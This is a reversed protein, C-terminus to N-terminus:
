RFRVVTIGAGGLEVREDEFSEVADINRLYNRVLQRLIGWGKGHLIKVESTGTMFADDIFSELAPIAEEAKMGRMDIHPRFNVKKYYLEAALNSGTDEPRSANRYEANSIKEVKDQSLSTVMNGIALLVTNGTIDMIEGVSGSGSIRVKDGVHLWTEIPVTKTKDSEGSKTKLRDARKKIQKIKQNIKEDEADKEKGAQQRFEELRERAAKTKEKDAQAERIERITSEIRRNTGAFLEAAKQNADALIQKRMKKTEALEELYLALIEELKKEEQRIHQRKKEWYRKDRAADKLHKDFDVHDRGIKQIANELIDDPLGTKGAIEFAYSSGPKGTELRFLPSIKGSDFLMAGNIIGERSAAFHKLNSYHTTILGYSGIDCLRDLVAEAIMGGTHPETGSGFEDIMVLTKRCAHKLFYKMYILHSSYTSLDNEISQDDGIDIFLNSFIGAASEEGAPVLLGCQLMYQLLGTTKLCVSKGGANPGSIVLIRDNEDLSIDLPVVKRGEKQFNIYLLPHIAQKWS